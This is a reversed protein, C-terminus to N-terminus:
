QTVNYKTFLKDRTIEAKRSEPDYSQFEAFEASDFAEKGPWPLGTDEEAAWDDKHAEFPTTSVSTLTDFETLVQQWFPQYLTFPGPDLLEWSRNTGCEISSRFKFFMKKVKEASYGIAVILEDSLIEVVPELKDKIETAINTGIPVWMLPILLEDKQTIVTSEEGALIVSGAVVISSSTLLNASEKTLSYIGEDGYQFLQSASMFIQGDGDQIQDKGAVISVKEETNIIANKANVLVTGEPSKLLIGNTQMSEGGMPDEAMTGDWPYAKGKAELTIGGPNDDNIGAIMQLNKFASLRVDKNASEIDISNHAKHVIDDGALTLATKGPLIQINGPCSFQINGCLMVIESGWADRLIISGDEGQWIGSRRKDYQTLEVTSSDTFGPDYINPLPQLEEETPTYFEESEQTRKYSNKVDHKVRSALELQRYGPHDKSHQFPELKTAEPEEAQYPYKVRVPVPIRGVRETSIMGTSAFRYQGSPDVSERAVGLEKPKDGLCHPESSSTNPDHELWYKTTLGGYYGEFEIVRPLSTQAPKLPKTHYNEEFYDAKQFAPTDKAKLGLREEQYLCTQKEKSLFRRNHWDYENGSLTHQIISDAVIRIRNELSFIKIKSGGGVLSSSYLGGQIGCNHQNIISFEGPLVDTPRNSMYRRASIDNPTSSPTSYSPSTRRYGHKSLFDSRRDLEHKAQVKPQHKSDVSTLVPKRALIMGLYEDDTSTCFIVEDGEQLVTSDSYGFGFSINYAGIVCAYFNGNSSVMASYLGVNFQEVTGIKIESSRPSIRKKLFAFNSDQLGFTGFPDNIGQLIKRQSIM